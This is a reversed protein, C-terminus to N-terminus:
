ILIRVSCKPKWTVVIDAKKVHDCAVKFPLFNLNFKRYHFGVTGRLGVDVIEQSNMVDSKLQMAEDEDVEIGKVKTTIKLVKRDKPRHTFGSVRTRGLDIQGSKVHVTLHGYSLEFEDNKNLFEIRLGVNANLLTEKTTNHVKLTPFYLNQIYIKPMSSQLFLIFLVGVVVLFVALGFIGLLTWAFCVSCCKNCGNGERVLHKGEDRAEDHNAPVDSFAVHRGSAKELPPGSIQTAKSTSSGVM